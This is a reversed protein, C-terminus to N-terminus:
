PIFQYSISTSGMALSDARARQLGRCSSPCVASGIACDLLHLRDDGYARSNKHPHFNSTDTSKLSHARAVRLVRFESPLAAWLGAKISNLLGTFATDTNGPM